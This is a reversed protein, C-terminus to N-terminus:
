NFFQAVKDWALRGIGCLVVLLLGRKLWLVFFESDRIAPMIRAQIELKLDDLKRSSECITKSMGNDIREKIHEIDKAMAILRGEQQAIQDGYKTAM